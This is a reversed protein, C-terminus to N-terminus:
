EGAAPIDHVHILNSRSGQGFPVGATVVLRGREGLEHRRVAEITRQLMDSTSNFVAEVVLCEVGWVLSLRRQTQPSPTVALIPTIPRHRAIQRATYGSMTTSVIATAGVEEAILCSAASIAESVTAGTRYAERRKSRWVDYPFDRETTENIQCMMRVAEVPYRGAATEQSLMVADSGDLIANAVDSAEARTPRPHEVMSQLMQTATIVPKGVLNCAQIIRKQLMPVEQAPMDIGLDGRAVMMGDSEGLIQQLHDIAESKEIKAIIPIQGSHREDIWTRVERVDSASRVFSLAVYDLDQGCIVELDARDKETLSSIALETDPVSVGKRSELTGPVIVQCRVTDSQKRTVVLEVEGDGIIVKDGAQVADLLEEHPLHIMAPQGRRPTFVVEDGAALKIGGSKVHGLRLKPGQLDGLIALAAGEEAAVRRLMGITKIHEEREGHSFNIRAVSMGAQLMQRVIEPDKSAPGITAVIKTRPM